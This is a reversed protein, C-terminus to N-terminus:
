LRTNPNTSRNNFAALVRDCTLFITKADSFRYVDRSRKRRILEVIKFDTTAKKMVSERVYPPIEEKELIEEIDYERDYEDLKRSNIHKTLKARFYPELKENSVPLNQIVDHHDVGIEMQEIQRELNRILEDLEGLTMKRRYYAGIIGDTYRAEEEPLSAPLRSTAFLKYRHALVRRVEETTVRLCRIRYGCNKLLQLLETSANNYVPNQLGLLRFIINSDLYVTLDQTKRALDQIQTLDKLRSLLAGYYINCFTTYAGADYRKIHAVFKALSLHTPNSPASEFDGRATIDVISLTETIFDLLSALVNEESSDVGAFEKYKLLLANRERQSDDFRQRYDDVSNSDPRINEIFNYGEFPSIQGSRSLKKLLTRLTNLPLLLSTQQRIEAQIEELQIYASDLTSLTYQVFPLYSELLDQKEDHLKKLVAYAILQKQEM